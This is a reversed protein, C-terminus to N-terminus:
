PNLPYTGWKLAAELMAVVNEPKVDDPLSHCAALVYGGAPALHRILDRVFEEVEDTIRIFERAKRTEFWMYRVASKM